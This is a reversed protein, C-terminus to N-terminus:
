EWEKGTVFKYGGFISGMLGNKEVGDLWVSVYLHVLAFAIILYTVLHHYLRITQGDMSMLLWGGLITAVPTVHSMSYLAFGTIVQFTFLCFVVFYALGASATHGAAYPPQKGVFTYFKVSTAFDKAQQGSFPFWVKWCAYRNGAFSWYLRVVLSCVFLYAVSFHIFRFWGMVYQSSSYAHVYPNGIYLGTAIFALVSLVNVWHTLRVPLEWVYKRIRPNAM